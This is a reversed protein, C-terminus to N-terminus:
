TLQTLQSTWSWCFVFHVDFQVFSQTLNVSLVGSSHAVKRHTADPMQGEFCTAAQWVGCLNM